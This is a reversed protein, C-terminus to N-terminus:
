ISESDSTAKPKAESQSSEKQNRLHQIREIYEAIAFGSSQELVVHFSAKNFRPQSALQGSLMVRGVIQGRDPNYICIRKEVCPAWLTWGKYKWRMNLEEIHKGNLRASWPSDISNENSINFRWLREGEEIDIVHLYGNQTISAVRQYIPLLTVPTVLPDGLEEDWNDKGTKPGYAKLRGERLSVIVLGEALVPPGIIESSLIKSWKEEMEPLQVAIIKEASSLYLSNEDELYSFEMVASADLNKSRNLEEGTERNLQVMHTAKKEESKSNKGKATEYAQVVLYVHNNKVFPPSLSKEGVSALWKLEGTKKDIATVRGSTHSTYVLQNDVVPETIFRSGPPGHLQFKWLMQGDMGFSYLWGDADTMYLNDGAFLWVPEKPKGELEMLLPSKTEEVYRRNRTEDSAEVSNRKWGMRTPPFPVDLNQIILQKKPSPIPETKDIKEGALASRFDQSSYLYPNSVLVVYVTAISYLLLLAVWYWKAHSRNEYEM